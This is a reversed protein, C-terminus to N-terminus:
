KATSKGGGAAADGKSLSRAMELHQSVIPEKKTAAAKVEPDKADKAAARLKKLTDEHDKVMQQMYAQDFEEGSMSELKKMASQHKKSPASPPQMGKSRALAEGESLGKGHEDVMQQAFKKVEPSSAKQAALKGTEVEAMDAEGMDRLHRADQRSLNAKAKDQKADQASLSLPLTLAALCVFLTKM